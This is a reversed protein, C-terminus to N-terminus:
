NNHREDILDNNNIATILDDRVFLLYPCGLSLASSEHSDRQAVVCERWKIRVVM